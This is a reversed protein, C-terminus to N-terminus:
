EGIFAPEEGHGLTDDLNFELEIWLIDLLNINDTTHYSDRSNLNEITRRIAEQVQIPSAYPRMILARNSLLTGFFSKHEIEESM